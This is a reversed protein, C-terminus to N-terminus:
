RALRFGTPPRRRPEAERGFGSGSTRGGESPRSSSGPEAAPGGAWPGAVCGGRVFQEPGLDLLGLPTEKRAIM